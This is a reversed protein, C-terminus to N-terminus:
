SVLGPGAGRGSRVYRAQDDVPSNGDGRPSGRDRWSKAEAGLALRRDRENLRSLLGALRMAM